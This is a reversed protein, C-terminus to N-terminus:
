FQGRCHNNNNYGDQKNKDATMSGDYPTSVNANVLQEIRYGSQGRGLLAERSIFAKGVNYGYADIDSDLATISNTREMNMMSNNASSDFKAINWSWYDSARNLGNCYQIRVHNNTTNDETDNTFIINNDHNKNDYKDGSFDSKSQGTELPYMTMM